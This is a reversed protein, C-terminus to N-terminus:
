RFTLASHNGGIVFSLVIYMLLYAFLSSVLSPPLIKLNPALFNKEPALSKEGLFGQIKKYTPSKEGLFGPINKLALSKGWLDEFKQPIQAKFCSDLAPNPNYVVQRPSELCPLAFINPPAM